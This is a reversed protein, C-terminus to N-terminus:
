SELVGGILGRAKTALELPTEPRIEFVAIGAFDIRRLTEGLLAWDERPIAGTGSCYHDRANGPLQRYELPRLEQLHLHILRDSFADLFQRMTGPNEGLYIHGVDICCYLGPVNKYADALDDFKGNELALKVGREGAYDVARRIVDWDRPGDPLLVDNGHLVIVGADWAVAADIMKQHIAFDRAGGGVTHLSVTMGDLAPKLRARGVEDYLDPENWCSGWLEIGYGAGRIDAIVRELSARMNYHSYNWLSISYTIQM